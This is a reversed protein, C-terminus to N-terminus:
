QAKARTRNINKKHSLGLRRLWRSLSSNHVKLGHDAELELRLADLTLDGQDSLRKKVWAAHPSLKGGVRNGQRKAALSGTERRLKVMDNVFRVSVTFVRGADRHSHGGDVHRVVRERLEIPHPKGM